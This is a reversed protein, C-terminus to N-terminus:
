HWRLAVENKHAAPLRFQSGMSPGHLEWELLAQGGHLWRNLLAQGGHLWLNLLAQGGHLM